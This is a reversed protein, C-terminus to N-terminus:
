SYADIIEERIDPSPQKFGFFQWGGTPAARSIREELQDESLADVLQHTFLMKRRVNTYTGFRHDFRFGGGDLADSKRCM